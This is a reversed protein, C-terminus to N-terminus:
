SVIANEKPLECGANPLVAGFRLTECTRKIVKIIIEYKLKNYLETAVHRDTHFIPAFVNVM